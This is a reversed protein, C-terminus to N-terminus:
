NLGLWALVVASILTTLVVAVINSMVWQVLKKGHSPGHDKTTHGPQITASDSLSIHGDAGISVGFDRLMKSGEANTIAETKIAHQFHLFFKENVIRSDNSFVVGLKDLANFYESPRLGVKGEFPQVLRKLFANDLEM